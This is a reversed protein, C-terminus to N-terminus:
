DRMLAARARELWLRSHASPHSRHFSELSDIVTGAAFKELDAPMVHSEVANVRAHLPGAQGEAPEVGLFELVSEFERRPDSVVDEQYLIHLRDSGFVAAWRAIIEGYRAHRVCSESALRDKWQQKGIQEYRFQGDRMLGMRVHSWVRDIPDRLMLIIRLGPLAAGIREVESAPLTAYGPFVEGKVQGVGEIFHSAYWEVGLKDRIGFYGIEKRKRPVYVGPCSSLMEHLWTTACKQVGICLFDPMAQGVAMGAPWNRRARFAEIRCQLGVLGRKLKKFSRHRVAQKNLWRVLAETM